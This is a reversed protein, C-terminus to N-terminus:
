SPLNQRHFSSYAFPWSKCGCLYYQLMWTVLRLYLELLEIHQVTQDGDHVVASLMQGLLAKLFPQNFKTGEVLFGESTRQYAHALQGVTTIGPVLGNGCVFSLVVIDDIKPEWNECSEAIASRLRSISVIETKNQNEGRIVTIEPAHFLLCLNIIDSDQSFITIKM